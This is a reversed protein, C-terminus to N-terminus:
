PLPSRAFAPLEVAVTAVSIAVYIMQTSTVYVGWASPLLDWNGILLATAWVVSLAAFVATVQRVRRRVSRLLLGLILLPGEWTLMAPVDGVWHAHRTTSLLLDVVLLLAFLALALWSLYRRWRPVPRGEPRATTGRMLTVSTSPM